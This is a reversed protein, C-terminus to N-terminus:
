KFFFHDDFLCFFFFKCFKFNFIEGSSFELIDLRKFIKSQGLIKVAIMDNDDDEFIIDLKKMGEVLAKEDPSTANFNEGGNTTQVTHCLTLACLFLEM